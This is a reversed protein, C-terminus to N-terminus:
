YMSFHKMMLWVKWLLYQTTEVVETEMWGLLLSLNYKPEKKIKTAKAALLM